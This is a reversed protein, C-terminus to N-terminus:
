DADSVNGIESMGEGAFIPSIGFTVRTPVNEILEADDPRSFNRRNHKWSRASRGGSSSPFLWHAPRAPRVRPDRNLRRSAACISRMFESDGSGQKGEAPAPRPDIPGLRNALPLVSRRELFNCVNNTKKPSTCCNCM